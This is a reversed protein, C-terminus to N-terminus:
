LHNSLLDNAVASSIDLKSKFLKDETSCVSLTCVMLLVKRINRQV